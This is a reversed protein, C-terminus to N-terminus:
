YFHNRNEDELYRSCFRDAHTDADLYLSHHMFKNRIAQAAKLSGLSLAAASPNPSTPNMDPNARHSNSAAIPCAPHM